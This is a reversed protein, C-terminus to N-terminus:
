VITHKKLKISIIDIQLENAMDNMLTYLMRYYAVVAAFMLVLLGINEDIYDYGWAHALSNAALATLIWM